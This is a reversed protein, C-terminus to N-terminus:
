DVNSHSRILLTRCTVTSDIKYESHSDLGDSLVALRVEFCVERVRDPSSNGVRVSQIVVCISCSDLPLIVNRFSKFVYM